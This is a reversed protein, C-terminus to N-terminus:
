NHINKGWCRLVCFRQITSTVVGNGFELRLGCVAVVDLKIVSGGWTCGNITTRYPSLQKRDFWGGSVGYQDNGVPRILYESNMTTVLLWDGLHFDSRRLEKGSTSFEVLTSLAHGVQTKNKM